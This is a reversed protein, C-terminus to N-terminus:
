IMNTVSSVFIQSTNSFTILTLIDQSSVTSTPVYSSGSPQLFEPAFSVTGPTTGAQQILLNVTQGPSVNTATIHTDVGDALTVTFLSTDNFDLSATQASITVSSVQTEVAGNLTVTGDIRMDGSATVPASLVVSGGGLQVQTAAGITVGQTVGANGINISDNGQTGIQIDSAYARYTSTGDGNTELRNTAVSGSITQMIDGVQYGANYTIGFYNFAASNAQMMVMANDYRSSAGSYNLMGSFNLGYGYPVNNKNVSGYNIAQDFQFAGPVPNLFQGSGSVLVSGTFINNPGSFFNVGDLQAYRGDLSSTVQDSGSVLNAGNFAGGIFETAQITTSSSIPTLASITGDTYNGPHQFQLVEQIGSTSRIAIYPVDGTLGVGPITRSAGGFILRRDVSGSQNLVQTYDSGGYFQGQTQGNVAQLFGDGSSGNLNLVVQGAGNKNLVLQQGGDGANQNVTFNSNFASQVLNIQNYGNGAGSSLYTATANTDTTQIQNNVVVSGSVNISGTVSQNGIFENSGTTAFTTNLLEQSATFSNLSTLDSHADWSATSVAQAVGNVDGVWAYGNTINPLDNVRGAGSVVGSGNLDAKVVNGLLQIYASGTPKINTYGGGPALYISEGDTFASTDVGTIFGNLIGLGSEEPNLDQDLIFTAPIKTPDSADAAYVHLENGTSGSVYVPTGKPMFGNKNKVSEVVRRPTSDVEFTTGDGKTFTLISFDASTNVVSSGTIDSVQISGSVIGSPINSLDPYSVQSSGSVLGSPVNTLNNWDASATSTSNITVDGQSQDITINNGAIISTVGGNLAYSATIAFSATDATINTLASGDGKFFSATVSGTIELDQVVSGTGDVLKGTDTDKQLLQQFSASIAQNTLNYNAM